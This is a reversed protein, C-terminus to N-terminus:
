IYLERQSGRESARESPRDPSHVQSPLRVIHVRRASRRGHELSAASSHARAELDSSLGRKCSRTQRSSSGVYTCSAGPAASETVSRLIYSYSSSFVMRESELPCIHRHSADVLDCGCTLCSAVTALGCIKVM